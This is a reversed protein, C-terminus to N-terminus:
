SARTTMATLLVIIITVAGEMQRQSEQADGKGLETVATKTYAAAMPSFWGFIGAEIWM